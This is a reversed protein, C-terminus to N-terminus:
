SGSRMWENAWRLCQWDPWPARSSCAPQPFPGPLQPPDRLPGSPATGFSVRSGLTPCAILCVSWSLSLSLAARSFNFVTFSASSVLGEWMEECVGARLAAQFISTFASQIGAIGPPVWRSSSVTTGSAQSLPRNQVSLYSSHRARRWRELKAPRPPDAALKMEYEAQAAFTGNQISPSM